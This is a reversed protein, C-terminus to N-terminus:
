VRDFSCQKVDIRQYTDVIIKGDLKNSSALIIVVLIIKVLTILM